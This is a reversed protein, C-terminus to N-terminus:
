RFPLFEYEFMFYERNLVPRCVHQLSKSQQVKLKCTLALYLLPTIYIIFFFAKVVNAMLAYDNVSMSKMEYTVRSNYYATYVNIIFM